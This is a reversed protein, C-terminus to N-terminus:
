NIQHCFFPAYHLNGALASFNDTDEPFCKKLYGEFNNHFLARREPTLNNLYATIKQRNLPCELAHTRSDIETAGCECTTSSAPSLWFALAKTAQDAKLKKITQWLAHKKSYKSTDSV